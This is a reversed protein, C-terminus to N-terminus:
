DACTDSHGLGLCHGIVHLAVPLLTFYHEDGALLRRRPHRRGSKVAALEWCEAADFSIADLSVRRLTSDLPPRLLPSPLCSSALLPSAMLSGNSAGFSTRLAAARDM